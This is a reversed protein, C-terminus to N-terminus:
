QQTEDDKQAEKSVAKSQTQITAGEDCCKCDASDGDVCATCDGCGETKKSVLQSEEACKGCCGPAASKSEALKAAVTNSDDCKCQATEGGACAPCDGCDDSKAAALAADACETCGESQEDSCCACTTKAVLTSDTPSSTQSTSQPQSCGLTTVAVALCLFTLKISNNKLMMKEGLNSGRLPPKKRRIWIRRYM